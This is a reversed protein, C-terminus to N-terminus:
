YNHLLMWYGNKSLAQETAGILLHNLGRLTDSLINEKEKQLKVSSRSIIEGSWWHSAGGDLGGVKIHMLDASALIQLTDVAGISEEVKIRGIVIKGTTLN